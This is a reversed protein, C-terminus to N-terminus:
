KKVFKRIITEEEGILKIFYVGSPLVSVDIKNFGSTVKNVIKGAIDIIYLENIVSHESEITLYNLTPNPFIKIAYPNNAVIISSPSSEEYLSIIEISNLARNYIRVDDIMGSFYEAYIESVRAGIRLDDTLSNIGGSASSMHLLYGNVHITVLNTTKNYTSVINTWENESVAFYPLIRGWYNESSGYDITLGSYQVGPRLTVLQMM